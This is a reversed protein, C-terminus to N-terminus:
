ARLKRKAAAIAYAPDPEFQSLDLEFLQHVLRTAKYDRNGEPGAALIQNIQEPNIDCPRTDWPKLELSETQRVYVCFLAVRLWSEDQLKDLVQERREQDPGELIQGIARTFADRDIEDIDDDIPIPIATMM